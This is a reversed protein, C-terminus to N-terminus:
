AMAAGLPTRRRKADSLTGIIDRKQMALAPMLQQMTVGAGISYNFVYSDGRGGGLKHNPTINGGTSPTFLEPGKEGVMYTTGADVPGGVAKGGGFTSFWSGLGAALPQTIMSRFAIQAIDKILSNVVDSLNKAEFIADEFSSAMAAGIDFSLKVQEKMLPILKETSDALNKEAIARAGNNETGFPMKSIQELYVAREKYLQNILKTRQESGMPGNVAEDLQMEAGGRRTVQSGLDTTIALTQAIRQDLKKKKLQELETGLAGLSETLENIKETALESKDTDNLFQRFNEAWKGPELISFSQSSGQWQSLQRTSKEIEKRLFTERQADTMRAKIAASTNALQRATSEEVKRASEAAKEWQGAIADVATQAVAFGSGIGLGSMVSKGIEAGSFKRGVGKMLKGAEVEMKSFGKRMASDVRGLEKIAPTGDAGIIVSIGGASNKAM